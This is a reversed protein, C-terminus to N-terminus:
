CSAFTRPEQRCVYRAAACVACFCGDDFWVCISPEQRCVYFYRVTACVGAYCCGDELWLGPVFTRGVVYRAAACVACGYGDASCLWLCLSSAGALSLLFSCRLLIWEDFWLRLYSAGALLMALQMASLASVDMKLGSALTGPEQRCVYRAAACVARCCGDTLWLYSHGALLRLSSFRLCRLLEWGGVLPLPVFTRGVFAAFQLAFLAAIDM